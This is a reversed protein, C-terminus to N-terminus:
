AYTATGYVGSDYTSSPTSSGGSIPSGDSNAVALALGGTQTSTVLPFSQLAGALSTIASYFSKGDSLRVSIPDKPSTPLKIEQKSVNVVPKDRKSVAEIIGDLKDTVKDLNDVSVTKAVADAINSVIMESVPKNQKIAEEVNKTMLEFSDKLEKLNSVEVEKQTNVEVKGSVVLNDKPPEYQDIQKEVLRKNNKLLKRIDLLLQRQEEAILEYNDM